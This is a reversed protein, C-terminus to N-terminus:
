ALSKVASAARTLYDRAFDGTLADSKLSGVSDCGIVFEARRAHARM